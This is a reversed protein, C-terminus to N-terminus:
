PAGDTEPAANQQYQLIVAQLTARIDARELDYERALQMISQKENGAQPIDLAEFLADEPVNYAHAIYPLTMWGRIGEVDTANHSLGGQHIRMYTHMARMGFFGILAVGVVILVIILIKEKWSTEPKPAKNTM